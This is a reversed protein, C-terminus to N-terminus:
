MPKSITYSELSFFISSVCVCVCVCSFVNRILAISNGTTEHHTCNNHFPFFLQKM